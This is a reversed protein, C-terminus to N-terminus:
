SKKKRFLNIIVVVVFGTIFATIMADKRECSHCTWIVEDDPDPQRKM